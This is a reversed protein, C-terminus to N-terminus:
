YEYESLDDLDGLPRTFTAHAPVVVLAHAASHVSRSPIAVPLSVVFIASGIITGLLCFPRVLFVDVAVAGGNYPGDDYTTALSPPTSAMLIAACLLGVMGSKLSTKHKM